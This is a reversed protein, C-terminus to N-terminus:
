TISGLFATSVNDLALLNVQLTGRVKVRGLIYLSRRLQRLIDQAFINASSVLMLTRTACESLEFPSGIRFKRRFLTEHKYQKSKWFM